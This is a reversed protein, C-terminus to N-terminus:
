LKGERFRFGRWSEGTKILATLYIENRPSGAYKILEQIADWGCFELVYDYVNLRHYFSPKKDFLVPTPANFSISLNM